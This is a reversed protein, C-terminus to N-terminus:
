ADERSRRPRTEPGRPCQRDVPRASYSREFSPGSGELGTPMSRSIGSPRLPRCLSLSMSLFFFRVVFDPAALRTSDRRPPSVTLSWSIRIVEVVVLVLGYDGRGPCM